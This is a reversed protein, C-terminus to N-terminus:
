EIFAAVGDDVGLAQRDAAIAAYLADSLDCAAEADAEGRPTLAPTPRVWKGDGSLEVQGTGCAARIADTVAAPPLGFAYGLAGYLRVTPIAAYAADTMIAAMRCRVLSLILAALGGPTTECPM